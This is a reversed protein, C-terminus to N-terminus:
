DGSAHPDGYEIKGGTVTYNQGDDGLVILAGYDNLEKLTGSIPLGDSIVNLRADRGYARKLWARRIYDFGKERWLTFVADMHKDIKHLLTEVDPADSLLKGIAVTKYEAVKPAIAVNIGIGIVVGVHGVKPVPETQILIGCLKQSEYLLDNPWKIKLHHDAQPLMPWLMEYLALATVFSLQSVARTEIATVEYRSAMFNGAPGQWPKGLRGVGSSQSKALIWGPGSRGERLRELALTQTSPLTDFIEFASV